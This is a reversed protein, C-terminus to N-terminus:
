KRDETNKADEQSSVNSVAVMLANVPVLVGWFCDDLLRLSARLWDYKRYEEEYREDNVTITKNEM